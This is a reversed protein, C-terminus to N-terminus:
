PLPTPAPRPRLDFHWTCTGSDSFVKMWFKAGETQEIWLGLIDRPGDPLVALALYIAKRRVTAEDRIKVRLADFFVVPYM